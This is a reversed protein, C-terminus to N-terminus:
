ILPASATYFYTKNKYKIPINLKNIFYFFKLSYKKFVRKNQRLDTRISAPSTKLIRKFGIIATNIAVVMQDNVPAHIWQAFIEVNVNAKKLVLIGNIAVAM